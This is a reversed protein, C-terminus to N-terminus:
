GGQRGEGGATIDERWGKHVWSTAMGVDGTGDSVLAVVSWTSEPSREPEVGDGGRSRTAERTEVRKM